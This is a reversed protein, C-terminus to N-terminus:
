LLQRDLPCLKEARRNTGTGGVTGFSKRFTDAVSMVSESGRKLRFLRAESFDGTRALLRSVSALQANLPDELLCWYVFRLCDARADGCM